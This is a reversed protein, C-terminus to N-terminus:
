FAKKRAAPTCFHKYLYDFAAAVRMLNSSEVTIDNTKSCFPKPITTGNAGFCIIPNEGTLYIRSMDGQQRYQAMKEWRAESYVINNFYWDVVSKPMAGNAESVATVICNKRDKVTITSAPMPFFAINYSPLKVGGETAQMQDGDVYGGAMIFAGTQELTAETKAPSETQAALHNYSVM